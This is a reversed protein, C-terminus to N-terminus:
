HRSNPCHCLWVARSAHAWATALCTHGQLTAGPPPVPATAGLGEAVSEAVTGTKPAMANRSTGLEPMPFEVWYSLTMM